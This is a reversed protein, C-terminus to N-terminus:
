ILVVLASLLDTHIKFSAPGFSIKVLYKFV